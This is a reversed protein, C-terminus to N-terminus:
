KRDSPSPDVRYLGCIDHFGPNEGNADTSIRLSDFVMVWYESYNPHWLIALWAEDLQVWGALRIGEPLAPGYCTEWTAMEEESAYGPWPILQGYVNAWEGLASQERLCATVPVLEPEQAEAADIGLAAWITLMFLIIVVSYVVHTINM